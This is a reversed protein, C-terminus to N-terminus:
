RPQGYAERALLFRARKLRGQRLFQGRHQFIQALAGSKKIRHAFPSGRLKVGIGQDSIEAVNEPANTIGTISRRDSVTVCGVSAMRWAIALAGTPSSTYPSSGVTLRSCSIAAARSPFSAASNTGEPVM